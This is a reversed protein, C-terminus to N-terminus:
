VEFPEIRFNDVTGIDAYSGRARTLIKTSGICILKRQVAPQAINTVPCNIYTLSATHPGTVGEKVSVQVSFTYWTNAKCKKTYKPGFKQAHSFYILNWFQYTTDELFMYDYKFLYTKGPQLGNITGDFDVRHTSEDGAGCDGDYGEIQLVQGVRHFPNAPETNATSYSWTGQLPKSFDGNIVYPAAARENLGSSEATPAAQIGAAALLSVTALKLLTFAM